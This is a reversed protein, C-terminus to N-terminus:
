STSSPCRPSWARRYLEPRMTVCAGSSCAAPAAAASPSGTPRATARRRRPARRLRHLRHVHQAQEAAQRRPVVGASSAAAVRTPSPGSAAATSCRCAPSRSGRRCRTRTPATATSRCGAGHRRRPTDGTGSSTSPCRRATPRPRGRRAGVRLRDLDYRRAGPRSSCCGSAPRRRGRRLGVAADDAVRLRLPGDAHRVRPQRRTSAHPGPRRLGADARHRRQSLIRIRELQRRVVRAARPPRRVARGAHDPPGAEHPVLETWEAPAPSDCPATVVQFDPADLNTLIVFRDGWHDVPVRRRAPARRVLLPEALPSPRRPARARRDLHQGRQHHHRVRESRSLELDVYFREDPEEYVLVDDAQARASSTAGSRTPACRTTPCPHLLPLARRGVVGHRLLHGRARRPLDTGTALDRVRLTFVEHGNLDASWASCATTRASTSPASSSSATAEAEVNEDLLVVETATAATAAGATSRTPSGRSPAASTGGRGRAPRARDRRDGPDAGQDRRVHRRRAPAHEGFWADAYANEAELYALTDPDDRDALWAWPDDVPGTPRGLHPRGAQRGAARARRCRVSTPRPRPPRSREGTAAARGAGGPLRGRTRTHISWSRHVPSPRHTSWQGSTNTWSSSPM